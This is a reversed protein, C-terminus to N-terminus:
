RAVLMMSDRVESPAVGFERRFAKAFQAPEHYGVSYAIQRITVDRREFLQEVGARMRVRTLYTRFTIGTVELCVRQLQRRSTFIARAVDDLMLDNEFHGEIHAVADEWLRQRERVTSPRSPM